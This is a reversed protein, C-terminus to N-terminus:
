RGSAPTPITASSGTGTGFQGVVGRVAGALALVAAVRGPPVDVNDVGAVVKAATGDGRLAGLLGDPDDSGTPGAILAAGSTAAFAQALEVLIAASEADSASAKAPTAAGILVMMTGTATPQEPLKIFGDDALGRLLAVAAESLGDTTEPHVSTRPSTALSVALAAAAQQYVDADPPLQLAGPGLLDIVSELVAVHTADVFAPQIEIQASVRAGAMVLSKAVQDRLDKSAGPALVMVIRQGSLQGAVLTPEALQAFAAYNGVQAKDATLEDRLDQKEKRLQSTEAKLSALVDGSLVNTGLVIGVALALFVAVISVVHYRFDVM